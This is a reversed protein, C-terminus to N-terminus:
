PSTLHKGLMASITFIVPTVCAVLVPIYSPLLAGDKEELETAKFHDKLSLLVVGLLMTSIGIVHHKQFVVGFIVRDAVANFFPTIGWIAMILGTNIHALNALYIPLITMLNMLIHCLCFIFYGICNRKQLTGRRFLKQDVWFGKGNLLNLFCRYNLYVFSILVSGATQYLIAEYGVVKANETKALNSTMYTFSNVISFAIWTAQKSPPPM